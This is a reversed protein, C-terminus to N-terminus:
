PQWRHTWPDINRSGSWQANSAEYLEPYFPIVGDPQVAYGLTELTETTVHGDLWVVVARGYHRPDAATRSQPASDYNAAEGGGGSGIIPPDLNFGENGYREADRSNNEYPLREPTPWSAATGMCDAAAVTNSPLMISTGKRGWNKYSTPDDPNLLRSNGLYQYNYGYSGNREDTWEPTQPCYYGPYSYDQRDGDEGSRDVTNKCAQPDDFPAVGVASAMMAVFTPRFKMAGLLRTSSNCDDQKPLRSPLMADNHIEQYLAIGQGFTRLNTGCVVTRAQGRARSLSPLLISILLAIIAIVVLLEILTFGPSRRSRLTTVLSSSM